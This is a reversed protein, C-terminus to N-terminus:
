SRVRESAPDWAADKLVVAPRRQDMVLIEFESGPSGFEPEVYAFFLSKGVSHGFAGATTLGITRDGSFIPENGWCDADDAELEGYVCVMELETDQRAMTAEKGQFAKGYDVFREIRAEVPTIETTLESGMAKYAKEIRMVNMAYSGFDVLNSDAGAEQIAMYLELTKDAPHHLEWGLEGVYSVRLARCDVGAIEIEQSTLWPFGGNSLDVSTIRELLGRSRPGAVALIGLDDTVDIVSVDEDERVHFTLWDFDHEQNTIGSNLYFRDPALRTVTMESEIGGLETLLHTLRIGGERRPLRNATIRDLFASSDSGSVEYKSFATLDAVGVGNRVAGVETAVSDFASSRRFSHREPQGDNSFYQAREWGHIEQWQAGKADLTDYLPTQKVPRGAPRYEGPMRVQYMEHYEDLARELNYEGPAYPGFRRPDMEAVNIDTQGHVM